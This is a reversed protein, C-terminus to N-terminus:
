IETSSADQSSGARFRYFHDVPGHGGGIPQAARIAGTIYDKAAAVADRVSQGRAICAAAASAFTCGTGHTSTTQIREATFETFESGDFLVDTPPGDLHGGKVVATRAGMSVLERAARRASEVDTVPGGVLVEAEWRNPTILLAMPLLHERLADVADERLLRSGVQAVMVPDVVLRDLGHEQLKGVVCDIVATSSLMGTKVADAGIDTVVADIQSGIISSPLEFVDTVGLTNQATIATLASTGYVGMAAFAKLDAQIGAGAGSDSGAITMVTPVKSM